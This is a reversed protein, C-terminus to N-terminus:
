DEKFHAKELFKQMIHTWVKVKERLWKSSAIKYKEGLQYVGEM